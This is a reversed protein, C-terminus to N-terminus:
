SEQSCLALKGYYFQTLLWVQSASNRETSFGVFTVCDIQPMVSKSEKIVARGNVGNSALLVQGHDFTGNM